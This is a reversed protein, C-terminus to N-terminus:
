ENDESRRRAAAILWGVLAAIGGAILLWWYWALGWFKGNNADTDAAQAVTSLASVGKVEADDTSNSDTSAGLVASAPSTILPTVTPAAIVGASPQQADGGTGRDAPAGTDPDDTGPAPEEEPVEPAAYEFSVAVQNSVNGALDEATVKFRYTGYEVPQIAPTAGWGNTDLVPGEEQVWAYKVATKNSSIQPILAGDEIIYEPDGVSLIPAYADITVSAANNWTVNGAKDYVAVTFVHGDLVDSIVKNLETPNQNIKYYESPVIVEFSYSGDGNDVLLSTENLHRVGGFAREQLLVSVRDIGAGADSAKVTLRITDGAKALTVANNNVTYTVDQVVPRSKDIIVTGLASPVSRNGYADIAVVRYYRTVNATWGQGVTQSRKDSTSDPHWYSTTNGDVDANAETMDRYERYEFSAVDSGDHSWTAQSNAQSANVYVPTNTIVPAQPATNDISVVFDDSVLGTKDYARVTYTGEGLWAIGKYTMAGTSVNTWETVKTGNKWVEIRALHADVAEIEPKQLSSTTGGATVYGARNLNVRLVPRTNDITFVSSTEAANGAEDTAVFRLVHEGDAFLRTDITTDFNRHDSNLERISTGDLFLQKHILSGDLEGQVIPRVAIYGSAIAPPDVQFSVVPKKNDVRFSFSKTQSIHGAADKANYRVSYVGDPLAAGALVTGLNVTHLGSVGTAPTQTSKYLTGEATYINAVITSLSVNDTAQVILQASASNFVAQTPALLEVQPRTVDYALTVPTSLDSWLGGVSQSQVTYTYVGEGRTGFFGNRVADVLSFSMSAPNWNANTSPEFKAAPGNPHTVNVRYRLPTQGVTSWQLKYGATQNTASGGVSAGGASVLRVNQPVCNLLGPNVLEGSVSSVVKWSDPSTSTDWLAIKGTFPGYTVPVNYATLAAVIDFSVGSAVPIDAARIVKGTNTAMDYLGDILLRYNGKDGVWVARNVQDGCTAPTVTLSPSVEGVAAVKQTAVFPGLGTLTSVALVFAATLNAVRKYNIERLVNM